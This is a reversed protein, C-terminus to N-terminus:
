LLAAGPGAEPVTRSADAFAGGGEAPVEMPLRIIFSAGSGPRSSVRIEGGHAEVLKHVIALGLGVGSSKTTFYPDFVRAADEPAIGPGTDRVELTVTGDSASAEVSLRGDRGMAQLANLYLNLLIQSFRDPDIAAELDEPDVRSDLVIGRERADTEILSLSHAVLAKLPYPGRSLEIPRAFDLLESIVRNLREVEHGMVEAIHRGSDDNVKRGLIDAFGKISSLPNRIEHAVGAALRGLAALRENRRVREELHKINSMDTFLFVRGALGGRRDRVVAANVLLPVGAGGRRSYVVERETVVDRSTLEESIGALCGVERLTEPPTEDGGLIARAAGNMERITGEQDAVMMGVPMRNVLTETFVREDQLLNRARRFHQAWTLSMIGAGGVLFLVAFLLITQVTDQRMAAQFPEASLGVVVYLNKESDSPSYANCAGWGAGRGRGGQWRVWPEFTRVVNFSEEGDSSFGHLTEDGRPLAVPLREGVKSPDSHAVARGDETTVAVYLVNPQQAIEEIFNQLQRRGWGAGQGGGGMGMGMGGGRGWGMGGEMMGSRNGAELSRMLVGAQSLLSNVMFEKERHINRVALLGLIVALICGSGLILWPSFWTWGSPRLTMTRM